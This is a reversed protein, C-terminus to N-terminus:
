DACRLRLIVKEENYTGKDEDLLHNKTVKMTIVEGRAILELCSIKAFSDITSRDLKEFFNLIRLYKM